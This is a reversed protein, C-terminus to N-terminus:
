ARDGETLRAGAAVAASVWRELVARPVMQANRRVHLLFEVNGSPGRLPSAMVGVVTYGGDGCAQSVNEICGRWVDPKRVVGGRGVDEDGAEFQPKVLLVMEAEDALCRVLAPLVTRLSIFSLDAVCLSISPPVQSPELTRVNKRELLTVRPDSRLRWDFQGYGVDVALVGAAGRQLLCDTFGGTSAGADLCTRGAVEVDFTELAADLKEGGRSVFRRISGSLAIAQDAAVMSAAKQAVSGSVM